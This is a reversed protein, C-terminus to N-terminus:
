ADSSEEEKRRRAIAEQLRSAVDESLADGPSAFFAAVAHPFRDVLRQLALTVIRQELEAESVATQYLYAKGSRVRTLIGKDTLRELTTKLTTYAVQSLTVHLDTVSTPQHHVWLVQMIRQELAGLPVGVGTKGPLFRRGLKEAYSVM